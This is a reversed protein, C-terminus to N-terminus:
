VHHQTQNLKIYDHVLAGKAANIAVVVQALSFPREKKAFIELAASLLEQTLEKAEALDKENM